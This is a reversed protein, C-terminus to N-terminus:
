ESKQDSDQKQYHSDSSTRNFVKDLFHQVPKLTPILVVFALLALSIFVRFDLVDSVSQIEQLTRGARVVLITQPM